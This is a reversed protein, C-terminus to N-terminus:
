QEETIYIHNTTKQQKKKKLFDGFFLTRPLYSLTYFMNM